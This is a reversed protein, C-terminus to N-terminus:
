RRPGLFTPLRNVFVGTAPARRVMPSAATLNNDRCLTPQEVRMTFTGAPLPTAIHRDVENGSLITTGCVLWRQASKLPSALPIARDPPQQASLPALATVTLSFLLGLRHILTM